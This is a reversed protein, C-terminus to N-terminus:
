AAQRIPRPEGRPQRFPAGNLYAAVDGPKYQYAFTAGEGVAWAILGQSPDTVGLDRRVLWTVHQRTCGLIEAVEVTTLWPKWALKRLREQAATM